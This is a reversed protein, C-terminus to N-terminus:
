GGPPVDSYRLAHVAVKRLERDVRRLLARRLARDDGCYAGFFSAMGRAGVRALLGRKVLSRFLRMIQAMREGPTLGPTIRARDLDIVLVETADPLERVLLNKVHLDAHRGGADHFRRVALGAARSTRLIQEPGPDDELWALGDLTDREYVTAVAASFLPGILREGAAFVPEPVPAGAERLQTNVVLERVARGLGWYARGLLPGFLGGHLLRRVVWRDGGPVEVVAVPARGEPAAGGASFLSALGSPLGLARVRAEFDARVVLRARGEEVERLGKPLSM